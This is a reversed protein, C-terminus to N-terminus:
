CRAKQRIGELEAGLVTDGAKLKDEVKKYNHHASGHDMGFARGLEPYSLGLETRAGYMAIQRAWAVKKPKVKSMIDEYRVGYQEAVARVIREVTPKADKVAIDGLMEALASESDVPKGSYSQNIGISVVAREIFRINRRIHNMIYEEAPRSLVVGNNKACEQVVRQRLELTPQKVPIVTRFRSYIREDLEPIAGPALNAAVCVIGGNGLVADMTSLVEGQFKSSKGGLYDFNDLLLIGLERYQRKFTMNRKQFIEEVVADIFGDVTVYKATRGPNTKLFERGAANLLHTKGLGPDGHVYFTREIAPAGKKAIVDKLRGLAVQNNEGIYFNDFSFDLSLGTELKSVKSVVPRKIEVVEVRIKRGAVGSLEDTIIGGIDQWEKYFGSTAQLYLVDGEIKVPRGSTRWVESAGFRVRKDLVDMAKNWIVGADEGVLAGNGDMTNIGSNARQPM